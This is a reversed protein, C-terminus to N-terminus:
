HFESIHLLTSRRRSRNFEILLNGSRLQSVVRLLAVDQARGRGVGAAEALPVEVPQAHGGGPEHQVRGHEGARHVVRAAGDGHVVVDEGLQPALILHSNTSSM